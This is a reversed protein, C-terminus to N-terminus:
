YAQNSTPVDPQVKPSFMRGTPCSDGVNKVDWYKRINRVNETTYAEWCMLRSTIFCDKIVSVVLRHEPLHVLTETSSNDCNTMKTNENCQLVTIVEGKRFRNSDTDVKILLIDGISRGVWMTDGVLALSSVFITCYSQHRSRKTSAPPLTAAKIRYLAPPTTREASPESELRRRSRSIDTNTSQESHELGNDSSNPDTRFRQITDTKPPLPPPPNDYDSMSSDSIRIDSTKFIKTDRRPPVPPPKCLRTIDEEEEELLDEQLASLPLTSDINNLVVMGKPSLQDCEYVNLPKKNVVDFELFLTTNQILCWVRSLGVQLSQVCVNEAFKPCCQHLIFKVPIKTEVMMTSNSYIIIQDSCGIWLEDNEHVYVM